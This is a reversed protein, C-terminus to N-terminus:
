GFIYHADGSKSKDMFSSIAMTPLYTIVPSTIKTSPQLEADLIGEDEDEDDEDGKEIRWPYCQLLNGECVDQFIHLLTENPLKRMPSLLSLLKARQTELHTLQSSLGEIDKDVLDLMAKLEKTREPTVVSPGSEFRLNNELASLEESSLNVSIGLSNAYAARPPTMQSSTKQIDIILLLLVKSGSLFMGLEKLRLSDAGVDTVSRSIAVGDYRPKIGSGVSLFPICEMGTVFPTDRRCGFSRPIISVRHRNRPQSPGLFGSVRREELGCRCSEDDVSRSRINTSAEDERGGSTMEKEVGASGSMWAVGTDRELVRSSHEVRLGRGIWVVGMDYERSYEVRLGMYGESAGYGRWGKSEGGLALERMWRRWGLERVVRRRCM